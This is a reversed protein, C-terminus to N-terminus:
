SRAYTYSGNETVVVMFNYHASSFNLIFGSGNLALATVPILPQPRGSGILGDLLILTGLYNDRVKDVQEKDLVGTGSTLNLNLGKFDLIIYGGRM